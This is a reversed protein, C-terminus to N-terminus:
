NVKAPLAKAAPAAAAIGERVAGVNGQLVVAGEALGQVAVYETGEFNGSSGLTVTKHAIKNNEIVQVYPQPKDSRISTKPVALTKVIATALTGQAFLGQRLGQTADLALYVMVSRSGATAAPNIRVVRAKVSKAAGEITLLATQGLRIDVSDSAAITAELELRSLDVIEVIRADIGVREGPQTSRVSIVGSIPAIVRTDDLSKKAVDVNALAAAHNAKAADLTAQSTDLANKSIFNQAVLSMNNDFNKQAIDVQAKAADATKQAQNQRAAFETTDITALLQGAVVSDGERVSLGRLDGAVKAKVVASSAARVNGSIPLGQSLLITNAITIDSAVLDISVKAKQAAATAEIAAKEAKRSALGKGIFILLIALVLFALAGKLWQPLPSFKMM